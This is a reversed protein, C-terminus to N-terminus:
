RHLGTRYASRLGSALAHVEVQVSRALDHTPAHATIALSDLASRCIEDASSRVHARQIEVSEPIKTHARSGAQLASDVSEAALRLQRVLRPLEGIPANAQTATAVAHEAADVSHWLQRRDRQVSWWGVQMAPLARVTTALAGSRGSGPLFATIVRARAKRYRRRAVHVVVAVSVAAGALVLLLTIIAADAASQSSMAMSM